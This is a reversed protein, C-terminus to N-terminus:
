CMAPENPQLVKGTCVIHKKKLTKFCTVVKTMYKGGITWPICGCQKQLEELFWSRQCDERLGVQCRKQDDPLSMFGSTGTMQKLSDLAYSGAKFGSFGSLTHIYLEFSSSEEDYNQGDQIQGPDIMLLLGYKKGLKTKGKLRNKLSYCLRGNVVDPQFSDCALVDYGPIMKGLTKSQYSCFPILASPMTKNEPGILHPPHM